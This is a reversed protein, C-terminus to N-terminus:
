KITITIYDIWLNRKKHMQMVVKKLLKEAGFVTVFTVDEEQMRTCGGSPKTDYSIAFYKSIICFFSDVRHM